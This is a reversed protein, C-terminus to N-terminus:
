TLVDLRFVPRLGITGTILLGIVIAWLVYEIDDV